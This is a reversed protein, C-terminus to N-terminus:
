CTHMHVHTLVSCTHMHTHMHMHTYAHAHKQPHCTHTQTHTRRCTHKQTCAGTPAHTNLLAPWVREFSVKLMKSSGSVGERGSLGRTM